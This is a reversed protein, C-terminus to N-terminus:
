GKRCKEALFLFKGFNNLEKINRVSMLQVLKYVSPNRWYYSKIYKRRLDSYKTCELIFHYEDECVNLNCMTCFRENRPIDYFRGTETNLNHACIRYKCIFPKYIYNIPRDLYFQLSHTSYVLKYMQCKPSSEIFTNVESLFSSIM